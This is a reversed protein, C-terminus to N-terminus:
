SLVLDDFDGNGISLVVFVSSGGSLISLLVDHLGM